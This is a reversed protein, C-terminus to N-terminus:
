LMLRQINSIRSSIFISNFKKLDYIVYMNRLLMFLLIKCIAKSTPSENNEQLFTGLFSLASVFFEYRSISVDVTNNFNLLVINV